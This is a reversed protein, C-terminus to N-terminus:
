RRMEDDAYDNLSNTELSVSWGEFYANKRRGHSEQGQAYPEHRMSDRISLDGM